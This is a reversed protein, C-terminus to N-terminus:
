TTSVKAIASEFNVGEADIKEQTLGTSSATEANIPMVPNVIVTAVEVVKFNDKVNCICWDLQVCKALFSGSTKEAQILEEFDTLLLAKEELQGNTLQKLRDESTAFLRRYNQAQGSNLQDATPHTTEVALCVM